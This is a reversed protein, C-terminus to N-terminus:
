TQLFAQVASRVSQEVAAPMTPTPMDRCSALVQKLSDCVGRCNACQTLHAEMRACVDPAIEGELHQSFLRVVDPCASSPPPAAAPARLLPALQQRVALRARHLRSKVAEVSLGLMKAVEPASLGEVDRLVLVERQAPDLAEIATQLAASVESAAVQQEPGPRPDSLHRVDAAGLVDLSEERAPAAKHRRRKRICFRRAITFLWSGVTSEGRFDDVGRAMAFLTEQAIDGADEADRCMTMGYRYVRPQYRRILVELAEADGRRVAALLVDDSSADRVDSV